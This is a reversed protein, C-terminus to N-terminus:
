AQLVKAEPFAKAVALSGQYAAQNYGYDNKPGVYLFGITLQKAGHVSGAFGAAFVLSVLVLSAWIFHRKM